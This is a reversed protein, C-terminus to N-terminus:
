SVRRWRTAGYAAINSIAGFANTFSRPTVGTRVLFVTKTVPVDEYVYEDRCKYVYDDEFSDYEQGCKERRVQKQESSTETSRMALGELGNPLLGAVAIGAQLLGLAQAQTLPYNADAPDAPAQTPAPQIPSPQM